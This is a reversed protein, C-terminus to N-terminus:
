ENLSKEVEKFVSEVSIGRMCRHDIPCERYKCPSCGVKKFMIVSKKGIPKTKHPITPGFISILPIDLADAIHMLGSDNSIFLESFSIAIISDRLSLKGALNFLGGSIDESIMLIKNREKDAGFFLIQIEPFTKIIKKILARFMDSPWVKASGYAATVSLGLIKKETNIGLNKLKIKVRNKDAVSFEPINKSIDKYDKGFLKNILDLYFFRHHKENQPYKIGRDLLFSRLDRRYGYIKKIGSFKFLLASIFSNTLLIGIDYGSVNLKKATKKINKFSTENPITLISDIIDIKEFFGSLYEKTVIYIKSEPFADKVAYVAPLSMVCDGIWNPSRLVIKM